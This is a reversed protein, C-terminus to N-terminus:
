LYRKVEEMLELFAVIHSPTKVGFVVKGVQEGYMIAENMCDILEYELHRPEEELEEPKYGSSILHNQVESVLEMAFEWLPVEQGRVLWVITNSEKPISYNSKILIDKCVESLEESSNNNSQHEKEKDM